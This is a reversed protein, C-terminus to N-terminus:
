RRPKAVFQEPNVRGIFENSYISRSQDKGCSIGDCRFRLKTEISGDFELVPFEWYSQTELHAWRYANGCGSWVRSEIPAWGGIDAYAELVIFLECGCTAFTVPQKMRNILRIPYGRFKSYKEVEPYYAIHETPFAVLSM